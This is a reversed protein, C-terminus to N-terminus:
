GATVANSIRSTLLKSFGFAYFSEFIGTAREEFEVDWANLNRKTFRQGM